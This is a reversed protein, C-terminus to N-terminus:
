YGVLRAEARAEQRAAITALDAVVQEAKQRADEARLCAAMARYQDQQAASVGRRHCLREYGVAQAMKRSMPM